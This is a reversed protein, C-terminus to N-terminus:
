DHENKQSRTAFEFGTFSAGAHGAKVPKGTPLYSVSDDQTQIQLHDSPPTSAFRFVLAKSTSSAGMPAPVVVSLREGLRLVFDHARWTRERMM